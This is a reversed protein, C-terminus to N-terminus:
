DDDVCRTWRTTTGSLPLERPIPSLLTRRQRCEPATVFRETRDELSDSEAARPHPPRRDALVGRRAARRHRRTAVASLGALLRVPCYARARPPLVAFPAAVRESRRRM